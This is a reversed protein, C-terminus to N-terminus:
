LVVCSEGRPETGLLATESVLGEKLIQEMIAAAAVQPAPPRFPMRLYETVSLQARLSGVPLSVLPIDGRAQKAPKTGIGTGAAVLVRGTLLTLSATVEYQQQQQQAGSSTAVASIGGGAAGERPKDEPKAGGAADSPSTTAGGGGGNDSPAAAAASAAAAAAAAATTSLSASSSPLPEDGGSFEITGRFKQAVQPFFGRWWFAM